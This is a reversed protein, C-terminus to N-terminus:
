LLSAGNRKALTLKFVNDVLLPFLQDSLSTFSSRKNLASSSILPLNVSRYSVAIHVTSNILSKKSKVTHLSILLLNRSLEFTQFTKVLFCFVM